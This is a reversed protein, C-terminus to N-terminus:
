PSIAENLWVYLSPAPVQLFALITVGIFLVVQRDLCVLHPSMQLIFRIAKQKQYVTIDTVTKCTNMRFDTSTGATYIYSSIAYHSSLCGNHKHSANSAAVVCLQAYAYPCLGSGQLTEACSSHQQQIRELKRCHQDQGEAFNHQSHKTGDVPM